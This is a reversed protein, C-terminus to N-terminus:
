EAAAPAAELAGLELPLAPLRLGALTAVEVGIPVVLGLVETTPAAPANAV